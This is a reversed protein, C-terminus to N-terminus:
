LEAEGCWYAAAVEPFESRSDGDVGVVVPPNKRCQGFYNVKAPANFHRCQGCTIRPTKTPAETPDPPAESWHTASGLSIGTVDEPEGDSNVSAAVAMFAGADKRGYLYGWVLFERDTPPPVEDLKFWNKM